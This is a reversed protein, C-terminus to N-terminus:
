TVEPDLHHLLWHCPRGGYLVQHQLPRCAILLSLTVSDAALYHTLARTWAQFEPRHHRRISSYPHEASPPSASCIPNPSPLHLQQQHQLHSLLFIHVTKPDEDHTNCILDRTGTGRSACGPPPGTISIAGHAEIQATGSHVYGVADHRVSYLAFPPKSLRGFAM